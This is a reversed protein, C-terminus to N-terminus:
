DNRYFTNIQYDRIKEKVKNQEQTLPFPRLYMGRFLLSWGAVIYLVSCELAGHLSVSGMGIFCAVVHCKCMYMIGGNLDKGELVDKRNIHIEPDITNSCEVPNEQDLRPTNHSLVLCLPTLIHRFLRSAFAMSMTPPPM